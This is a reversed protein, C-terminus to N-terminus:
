PSQAVERNEHGTRSSNTAGVLFLRMAVSLQEAEQLYMKFM